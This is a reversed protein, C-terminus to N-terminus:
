SVGLASRRGRPLVRVRRAEVRRMLSQVSSARPQSSPADARVRRIDRPGDVCSTPSLPSCTAHVALIIMAFTQRPQLDGVPSVTPCALPAPARVFRMRRSAHSATRAFRGKRGGGSVLSWPPGSRVAAPASATASASPCHACGSVAQAVSDPLGDGLLAHRRQGARPREPGSLSTDGTDQEHRRGRTATMATVGPERTRSVVWEARM